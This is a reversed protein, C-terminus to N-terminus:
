AFVLLSEYKYDSLIYESFKEWLLINGILATFQLETLIVGNFNILWTSVELSGLLNKQDRANALISLVDASSSVSQMNKTIILATM